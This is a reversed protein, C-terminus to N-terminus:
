YDLLNDIMGMAYRLLMLADNSMIRGDTYVDGAAIQRPSFEIMEMSARLTMLADVSDVVGDFNVDGLLTYLAYIDMDGTVNSSSESWGYFVYPGNDANYYTPVEPEAASQGHIVQQSSVLAGDSGYFNVTHVTKMYVKGNTVTINDHTHYYDGEGINSGPVWYRSERVIIPFEVYYGGNDQSVEETTPLRDIRYTIRIINGGMQLGGFDFSMLYMGVQTYLNGAEGFPNSGTMGEYTLMCVFEPMDSWATDDDYTQNIQYIIGGSWTTTYNLPTVIDEPYDILWHGSWMCSNPSVSLTMNFTSGVNLSNANVTSGSYSVDVNDPTVNNASAAPMIVAAMVLALLLATIKKM